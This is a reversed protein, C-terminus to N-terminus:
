IPKPPWVPGGQCGGYMRRHPWTVSSYISCINTHMPLGLLPAGVLTLLLYLADKGLDTGQDGLAEGLFEEQLGEEGPPDLRSPSTAM